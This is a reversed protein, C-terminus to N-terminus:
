LSSEVVAEIIEIEQFATMLELNVSYSSMSVTSTAWKSIILDVQYITGSAEVSVTQAEGTSYIETVDSANIATGDVDLIVQVYKETFTKQSTGPYGQHGGVTTVKFLASARPSGGISGTAIKIRIRLQENEDISDPFVSAYLLRSSVRTTECDVNGGVSVGGSFTGTTGSIAQASLSGPIVTAGTDANHWALITQMKEWTLTDFKFSM